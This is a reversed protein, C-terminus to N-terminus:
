KKNKLLRFSTFFDKAAASKLCKPSESSLLLVYIHDHGDIMLAKGRGDKYVIEKANLGDVKLHLTTFPQSGDNGIFYDLGSFKDKLSLHKATDSLELDSIGFGCEYSEAAYGNITKFRKTPDEGKLFSKEEVLDVPVRVSFSKESPSWIKQSTVIKGKLLKFSTFFRKAEDSNICKGRDSDSNPGWLLTYVHDVADIVMGKANAELLIIEQAALGGVKISRVTKRQESYGGADYKFAIFKEESSLRRGKPTLEIETITYWCDSWKVGFQRIHNTRGTLDESNYNSELKELDVPVKISFKKDPSSWTKSIVVDKGKQGFASQGFVAICLVAIVLIKNLYEVRM